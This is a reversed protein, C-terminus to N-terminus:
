SISSFEKMRKLFNGAVKGYGINNPHIEDMWEPYAVTNRNNIYVVYDFEEEYGKLITNFRDVLFHIVHDREKFDMIGAEIMYKNAWGKDIIEQDRKGQIYDYGHIFIKVNPVLVKIKSFFTRYSEDLFKMKADLVDEIIYAQPSKADSVRQRLMSQIESGLVDNGGGSILVFDPQLEAVKTILENNKIYDAVDDGADALSYVAYDNMIYDLTDKVGPRPYLFWSDGEAVVIPGGNKRQRRFRRRRITNYIKNMQKVMWSDTAKEASQYKNQKLRVEFAKGNWFDEFYLEKIFPALAESDLYENLFTKLGATILNFTPNKLEIRTMCTGWKKSVEKLEETSGEGKAKKLEASRTPHTITLPPPLSDQLFSQNQISSSFDEYNNVIFKYYFWEESWNYVEKYADLYIKAISKETDEHDYFLKSDGQTGKPSLEIVNGDFPKSTISLDSNLTLVGVFLKENTNNRVRIQFTQYLLTDEKERNEPHLTLIGNTVDNWKDEESSAEVIIPSIKFDMSPNELSYFHNWKIFSLLQELLEAELRASNYDIQEALPQFETEPMSFYVMNNFCNVLFRAEEKAVLGVGKQQEIVKAVADAIDQDDDINNIHLQLTDYTSLPTNAQYSKNFDMKNIAAMPLDLIAYEVDVAKVKGTIEEGDVKIIVEAGEKVGLLMGKNYVWGLKKNNSVQGDTSIIGEPNFNLWSSNQNLKGKGQVTVKPTQKKSTMKLLTMKSWRAIDLYTLNGNTAHLLQLLYNTFVGGRSDEWSSESSLCAALHISNKYPIDLTLSGNSRNEVSTDGAFLFQDYPRPPFVGSLRRIASHDDVSEEVYSRVINGSHCSDIVSILHPHHPMNHFFYRLEKNALLDSSSTNTKSFPVLCDLTGDHEEPFLGDTSELAGHGSYYFLAVDEDNAKYLHSKIKDVIANKTAQENYLTEILVEDCRDKVSNLYDEIKKSDNVCENLPKFSYRDIGVLLAFVKM